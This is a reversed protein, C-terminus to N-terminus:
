SGTGSHRGDESGPICRLERLRHVLKKLAKSEIQRIRERTLRLENGIAELTQPESGHFGFRRVLVLTERGSCEAFASRIDDPTLGWLNPTHDHHYRDALGHVEEEGLEDLVVDFPVTSPLGHLLIEVDAVPMGSEAAVATTTVPRGDQELRRVAGLAKDLNEVVHVPYRITRSQDAIARTMAQRIWWTAYTSFKTEQQHDFKQVARILGLNGEQVLDLLGLGRGQYKWAISVVLRLNARLFIAFAKRGQDVLERLDHRESSSLESCVMREQALVGAEIQRALLGEETATLLPYRAAQSRYVALIDLAPPDEDPDDDTDDPEPRSPEVATAGRDHHMAPVPVAPGIPGLGLHALSIESTDLEEDGRLLRVGTRPETRAPEPRGLPSRHAAQAAAEALVPPLGVGIEALERLLLAIEAPPLGHVQVVTSIM